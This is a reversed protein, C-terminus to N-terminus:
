NMPHNYPLCINFLFDFGGNATIIGVDGIDIGRRQYSIPLRKNPEPIWLPSG